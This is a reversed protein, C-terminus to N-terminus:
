VDGVITGDHQSSGSAPGHHQDRVATSRHLRGSPRWAHDAPPREGPTNAQPTTSGPAAPKLPSRNPATPHTASCGPWWPRRLPCCCNASARSRSNLNPIGLRQLRLRISTPHLPQGARGPFLWRSEPNTATTLNPRAAVYQGILRDFPAPIPAPPDGLRIAMRPESPTGVITPSSGTDATDDDVTIDDITLRVIRTLPQAYLLILLAIVRETLDMETGDYVRRILELRQRHSIPSPPTELPRPLQLRPMLQTRISWALFGRLAGRQHATAHAFWTDITAQTCTHLSLDQGDLDTLFAASLRLRYRASQHRYHGIPKHRATARLQRLVHWTAYRTLLRRHEDDRITALWRPLWQQFLFLERDVPPLVGVTVLLDRVYIASRWPQLAAIEDHTLGVQGHALATLLPPVHPKTLWLIGSRPRQMAVMHDFLPQLEPRIRGSGDDLATALRDRLVCRGCIGRYHNWGEQGCRTCRFDGIGGACDTCWRQGQPGIGPLLRDVGCGDCVGYAECARAYCGSCIPGEPWQRITTL